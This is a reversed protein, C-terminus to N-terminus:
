KEPEDKEAPAGFINSLFEGFAGGGDEGDMIEMMQSELNQMDGLDLGGAMQQMTNIGLERACPMCLGENISKGNELRTIFIVAVNKNCRSCLLLIM